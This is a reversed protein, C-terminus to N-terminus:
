KMARIAAAAEELARLQMTHAGDSFKWQDAESQLVAACREQERYRAKSLLDKLREVEARHAAALRAVAANHLIAAVEASMEDSCEFGSYTDGDDHEYATGCDVERRHAKWEEGTASPSSDPTEPSNPAPLSVVRFSDFGVLFSVAGTAVCIARWGVVMGDQIFRDLRFLEDRGAFAIFGVVAGVPTHETLTDRVRTGALHAPQPEPAPSVKAPKPPLWRLSSRPFVRAFSGPKWDVCVDGDADIVQVRTVEGIRDKNGAWSPGVVKVWDGPRLKCKMPDVKNVDSMVSRGARPALKSVANELEEALRRAVDTRLKVLRGAIVVQVRPHRAKTMVRIEGTGTYIRADYTLRNM